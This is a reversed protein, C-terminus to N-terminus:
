KGPTSFGFGNGSGSAWAVLAFVVYSTTSWSSVTDGDRLRVTWEYKMGPQLPAKLTFRPDHIGQAYAVLAGRLRPVAGTMGYLFSLSEFIAVDYTVESRSSPKWELNPTLNETVPFGQPPGAPRLPEVGKYNGDCNLGWAKGCIDTVRQFSGLRDELRMLGKVPALKGASLRAEELKLAGAYQDVVDLGFRSSDAEIRLEGIYVAQGKQPVSFSAFLRGTSRSTTIRNRTVQYGVIVYEGAQLPWYFRGDDVISMYQMEGSRIARVFVTLLDFGIASSSWPTEKGSETYAIRGFARGYGAAATAAKEDIPATAMNACASLMLTAGILALRAVFKLSLQAPYPM